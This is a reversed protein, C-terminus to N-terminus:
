IEPITEREPLVINGRDPLKEVVEVVPKSPLSNIDNDYTVFGERDKIYNLLHLAMLDLNISDLVNILYEMEAFTLTCYNSDTNVSLLIGEHAQIDDNAIIAPELKIFKDGIKFSSIIKRAVVDNIRLEKNYYFYLDRNAVFDRCMKKMAQTFNFKGFRNLTFASFSNKVNRSPTKFGLILFPAPHLRITTADPMESIRCIDIGHLNLAKETNHLIGFSLKLESNIKGYEYIIRYLM